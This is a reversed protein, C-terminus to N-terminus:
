GVAPADLKLLRSVDADYRAVFTLGGTLDSTGAVGTPTDKRRYWRLALLVAAARVTDGWPAAPDARDAVIPLESVFGVVASCARLLSADTAPVKLGGSEVVAAALEAPTM